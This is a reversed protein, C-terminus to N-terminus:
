ARDLEEITDKDLRVTGRGLHGILTRVSNGVRVSTFGIRDGPTVAPVGLKKLRALDISRLTKTAGRSLEIIAKNDEIQVVLGSIRDLVSAGLWQELPPESSLERGRIEFGRRTTGEKRNLDDGKLIIYKEDPLFRDDNFDKRYKKYTFNSFGSVPAFSAGSDSTELRTAWSNVQSSVV